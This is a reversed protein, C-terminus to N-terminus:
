WFKLMAAFSIATRAMARSIQRVKLPESMCVCDGAKIAAVIADKNKAANVYTYTHGMNSLFHVDGTGVLPKNFQEAVQEAKKNYFNMRKSFMHSYEIADFLTIHAVLQKGLCIKGPYFPHPAVILANPNNKKFDALESFTTIGEVETNILLVHARHIEVEVGRLVLVGYKAELQALNEPAINKLHHTLAIADFGLSAAHAILEEPTHLVYNHKSGLGDVPDLNTHTHLDVKLM